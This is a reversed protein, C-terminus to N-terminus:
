MKPSIFVIDLQISCGLNIFGSGRKVSAATPIRQLFITVKGSLIELVKRKNFNTQQNVAQSSQIQELSVEFYLNGKYSAPFRVM